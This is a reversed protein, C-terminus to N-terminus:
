ALQKGVSNRGGTTPGGTAPDMAKLSERLTTKLVKGYNNKPLSDVFEYRQPRKFRALRTLCIQDLRAATLTISPTTVIFAVVREGWEAHAEGVVACEAVGAVTLLVEEIERPYINAGGSIILDKSRDVLTLFGHEDLRGIDGTWLWGDQLAAATADRHDLYGRMVCASRTIVEGDGGVPVDRGAPDVVRVAVGTRPTGVTDLKDPRLAHDKRSLGSITMPSEGQGYLHYLKPGFRKLAQDLNARYMPAGGYILTGLGSTPRESFQPDALLRYVMTPAAFMAVQKFRAFADLVDGVDFSPLIVNTSGRLLHALGYLGSGHSLPAAHLITDAPDVFGIDAYYAHCAFLLNTHTLIAGKPRGTTGSTYFIWADDHAAGLHLTDPARPLADYALLALFDPSGRAIVPPRMTAPAMSSLAEAIDQSALVLRADAHNIIWAMEIAHLKANIPVAVLGARWAGFLAVFFAPCNEMAIAIRQGPKLGHRERLGTATRGVDDDFAAYSLTARPSASVTGTDFALLATADPVAQAVSQLCDALNM